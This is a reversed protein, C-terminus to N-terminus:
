NPPSGNLSWNYKLYRVKFNENSLAEALAPDQVFPAIYKQVSGSYKAFDETFWDFIKSVKITKKGSLDNKEPNNIFAITNDNLQKDLKSAVYAESILKPCSYSACVIAFHIRPENFPIIIDRELDYLNITRGAVEFDTTKFYSIRGFFTSPSLGDIIGKIALANYANIWFALKEEESAFTDPDTTKLTELYKPFLPDNKIGAYDVHGDKVHTVLVQNFDNHIADTNSEAFANISVLLALCWITIRKTM